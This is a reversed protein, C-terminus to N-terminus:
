YGKNECPYIFSVLITKNDIKTPLSQVEMLIIKGNKTMHPFQFYNKHENEAEKMKEKIKEFKLMNLDTINMNILQKISYGYIEAAKNNAAIIEGTEPVILLIIVPYNMFMEKFIM